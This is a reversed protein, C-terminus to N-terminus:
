RLQNPGVGVEAVASAEAVVVVVENLYCLRLARHQDANEAM